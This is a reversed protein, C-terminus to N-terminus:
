AEVGEEVEAGAEKLHHQMKRLQPGQRLAREKGGAALAEAQLWESCCQM